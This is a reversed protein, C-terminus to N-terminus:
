SVACLIFLVLLFICLFLLQNAWADFHKRLSTLMVNVIHKMKKQMKDRKNEDLYGMTNVLGGFHQNQKWGGDELWKLDRHMLFYHVLLLHAQYGPVDSTLQDGGPPLHFTPLDLLHTFM